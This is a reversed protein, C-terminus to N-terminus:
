VEQLSNIESVSTYRYQKGDRARTVERAVRKKRRRRLQHLQIQARLACATIERKWWYRFVSTVSAAKVVRVFLKTKEGFSNRLEDTERTEALLQWCTATHCSPTRLPQVTKVCFQGPAAPPASWRKQRYAQNLSSSPRIVNSILYVWMMLKNLESKINFEYRNKFLANKLGHHLIVCLTVASGNTTKLPM